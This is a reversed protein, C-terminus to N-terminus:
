KIIPRTFWPGVNVGAYATVFGQIFSQAAEDLLEEVKIWPRSSVYVIDKPQLRFDPERASLISNMDVAFTEPTNLSGRIVLVKKKHARQSFGGRDTIATVLTAQSLYGIPGPNMVEGLVYIENISSAAFFIYDNPEIIINQTLDGEHFLKELNVEMKKGDRVIFSRSLDTMDVTTREYLGTELGKARAVAELLTLPRDLPYVGKANVKGLMFYKKSNFAVPTIITRPATYYKGLEEDFRARLEEITLGTAMIGTAQLFSLRGDPGVVINTKTLEPHGFLMFDMADGPGLTLKEQWAARKRPSSVSFALQSSSQESAPEATSVPDAAFATISMLTLLGVSNAFWRALRINWAPPPAHNLVAGVLNCNGYRLTELHQATETADPMGSGTLWILQPVNEALLVSEPECAPPLEVLLVLNDIKKWYSLAHQWQQRRELNWVWGPLPIHVVPEANPDQLQEAVQMPSALVSPTLTSDQAEVPEHVKNEPGETAGPPPTPRPAETKPAESTPRTDVTLVRLGRQSAASVLLKVWTSRGEGHRASIFGCVLAQHPSYSLKGKLLTLTRFAWAIQTDPDMTRLDGLTALVPLKTFREVDAATKLRTDMVETLMVLGAAMVFGMLGGAFAILGIKAWRSKNNVAKSSAPSFIRYYGLANDVFLQTDTQRKVLAQRTAELTQIKTKLTAFEITKQSFGGLRNRAEEKQTEYNQLQHELARQQVTLEMIQRDIDGSIPGAVTAGTKSPTSLEGKGAASQMNKIRARQAIVLPHEDTFGRVHLLNELEEQAARLKESSPNHQSKQQTLAALKMKITDLDLGMNMYKAELASVQTIFAKSEEEFNHFGNKRNFEILQQNAKGLEAEAAAVRQALYASVDVSEGAQLVKSYRVVEEAYLNALTVMEEVNENGKVTLLVVDQNASPTISIMKALQDGKIMIPPINTQARALVRNIVDGSKMLTFLTQDSLERSGYPDQPENSKFANPIERKYLSVTVKQKIAFLGVFLAVGALALAGAILWLWGRKLATFLRWPDFPLTYDKEVKPNVRNYPLQGVPRRRAGAEGQEKESNPRTWGWSGTYERQGKNDQQHGNSNGHSSGNRGAEERYKKRMAAISFEYEDSM